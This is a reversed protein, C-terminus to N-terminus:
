TQDAAMSAEAEIQAMEAEANTTYPSLEILMKKSMAGAEYQKLLDALTTSNDTPANYNFSVDLSNYQEETLESNLLKRMADWRKYFGDRLFAAQRKAKNDLQTFLLKLSVESVNSVNGNFVVSPVQAVSYLQNILQNMILSVTNYDATATAYTFQGGDELNLIVGTINRDIQSDIRQGASVGLPNLSLTTVADSAKSLLAELEDVIPILDAVVGAGFCSYPGKVGSTYHIPLGTLNTYRSCEKLTGTAETSYETVTDPEFLNYFENGTIADRWHELFAVYEGRDTYVPFSDLPDFVKSKIIGDDDLFVYEYANGYCVLDNVLQYDTLAYNARNYIGNFLSVAQADGTLTVPNGVLYSCHFDVISKVVQMLIKATHFTQEKFTFDKRSLVKHEGDLYRKIKVAQSNIYRAEQTQPVAQLENITM